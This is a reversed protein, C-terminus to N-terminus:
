AVDVKVSVPLALSELWNPRGESVGGFSAWALAVCRQTGCGKGHAEGGPYLGARHAGPEM